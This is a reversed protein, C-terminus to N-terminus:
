IEEEIVKGNVTSRHVKTNTTTSESSQASSADVTTDIVTNNLNSFLDKLDNFRNYTVGGSVTSLNFKKKSM